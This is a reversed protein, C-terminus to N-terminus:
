MVSTQQPFWLPPNEAENQSHFVQHTQFFAISKRQSTSEATKSLASIISRIERVAENLEQANCNDATLKHWRCRFDKTDVIEEHILPHKLHLRLWNMTQEKDVIYSRAPICIWEKEKRIQSYFLIPEELEFLTFECNIQALNKHILAQQLKHLKASLDTYQSLRAQLIDLKTKLTKDNKYTAILKEAQKRESESLNVHLKPAEEEMPPIEHIVVVDELDNPVPEFEDYAEFEDNIIENDEWYELLGDNILNNISNFGSIGHKAGVYIGLAAAKFGFFMSIGTTYFAAVSSLIGLLVGTFPLVFFINLLTIPIRHFNGEEFLLSLVMPIKLVAKFLSSLQNVCRNFSPVLSRVPLVFIGLMVAYTRTFILKIIGTIDM